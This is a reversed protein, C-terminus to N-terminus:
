LVWVCVCVCVCVCVNCVWVNCFMKFLSMPLRLGFSIKGICDFAKLKIQGYYVQYKRRQAAICYRATDRRMIIAYIM